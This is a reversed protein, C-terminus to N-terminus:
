PTRLPAIANADIWGKTLTLAPNGVTEVYVPVWSGKDAAPVKWVYDSAGVTGVPPAKSSPKERVTVLTNPSPVLVNAPRSGDPFRDCGGTTLVNDTVLDFSYPYQRDGNQAPTELLTIRGIRGDPHYTKWMRLVGKPSSPQAALKVWPGQAIEQLYVGETSVTVHTGPGFTACRLALSWPLGNPGKVPGLNKATSADSLSWALLVASVSVALRRRASIM